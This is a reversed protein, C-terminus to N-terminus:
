MSDRDVAMIRDLTPHSLICPLQPASLFASEVDEIDRLNVGYVRIMMDVTDTTIVRQERRETLHYRWLDTPVKMKVGDTRSLVALAFARLIPVHNDGILTAWAVGKGWALADVTPQLQWGAKYLCRGLQKGWRLRRRYVGDEYVAVPYPRMGLFIIEDVHQVFTLKCSFGGSEALQEVQDSFRQWRFPVAGALDDGVIGIRMQAVLETCFQQDINDLSFVRGAAAHGASLWGLFSLWANVVANNVATDDRGSANVYGATFNRVDGDYSIRGKVRALKWWLAAVFGRKPFGLIRYLKRLFLFVGRSYSNDM